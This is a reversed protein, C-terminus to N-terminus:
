EFYREPIGDFHGSIFRCKIPGSRPRFKTMVTLKTLTKAATINMPIGAGGGGGGGFMQRNGDFWHRRLGMTDM